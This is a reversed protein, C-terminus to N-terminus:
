LVFMLAFSLILVGLANKTSKASSRINDFAGYPSWLRFVNSTKPIGNQLINVTDIYMIDRYIVYAQKSLEIITTADFDGLNQVPWNTGNTTAFPILYNLGKVLSRGQDDQYQFLNVKTSQALYSVSFLAKLNYCSYLWSLTRAQELPQSGDPLFQSVMRPLSNKALHNGADETQGLFLMISVAQV